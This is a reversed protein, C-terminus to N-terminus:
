GLFGAKTKKEDRRVIAGCNLYLFFPISLYELFNNYLILSPIPDFKQAILFKWAIKM